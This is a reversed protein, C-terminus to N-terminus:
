YSIWYARELSDLIFKTGEYTLEGEGELPPGLFAFRGNEM